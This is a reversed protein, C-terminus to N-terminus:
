PSAGSLSHEHQAFVCFSPMSVILIGEKYNRVLM